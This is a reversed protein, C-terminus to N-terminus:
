RPFTRKQENLQYVFALIEAVALYLGVPIEEDINLKSLAQILAPDNKIPIDHAQALEIIKEAVVGLGKATIIPARQKEPDYKIAAALRIKKEQDPM